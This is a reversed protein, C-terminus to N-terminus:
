CNRGAYNTFKVTHRTYKCSSNLIPLSSYSNPKKALIPDPLASMWFLGIFNQLGIVAINLKLYQTHIMVHNTDSLRKVCIVIVQM